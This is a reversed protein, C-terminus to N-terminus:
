CLRADHAHVDLVLNDLWLMPCAALVKCATWNPNRTLDLLVVGVVGALLTPQHMLAKHVNLVHGRLSQFQAKDSSRTWDGQVQQHRLVCASLAGRGMLCQHPEASPLPFGRVDIWLNREDWSQHKHDHHAGCALLLRMQRQPRSLWTLGMHAPLLWWMSNLGFYLVVLLVLVCGHVQPGGLKRRQSASGWELPCCDLLLPWRAFIRTTGEPPDCITAIRWQMEALTGWRTCTIYKHSLILPELDLLWQIWTQLFRNSDHLHSACMCTHNLLNLMTFWLM